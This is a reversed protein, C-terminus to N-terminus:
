IQYVFTDRLIFHVLKPSVKTKEGLAIMLGFKTRFKLKIDFVHKLGYYCFPLYKHAHM